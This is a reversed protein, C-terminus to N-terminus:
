RQLELIVWGMEASIYVLKFNVFQYDKVLLSTGYEPYSTNNIFKMIKDTSNQNPYITLGISDTIFGGVDAFGVMAGIKGVPLYCSRSTTLNMDINENYTCYFPNGTKVSYKTPRGVVGTATDNVVVIDNANLTGPGLDTIDTVAGTSMSQAQGYTVYDQLDTANPMNTCKYTSDGDVNATLLYALYNALNTVLDTEGERAAELETAYDEMANIFNQIKTPYDNDGSQPVFTEFDYDAAM